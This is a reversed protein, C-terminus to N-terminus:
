ASVLQVHLKTLEARRRRGLHGLFLARLTVLV